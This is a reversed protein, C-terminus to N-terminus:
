GEGEEVVKTGEGDVDVGVVAIDNDVKIV